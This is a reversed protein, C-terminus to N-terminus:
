NGSQGSTLHAQKLGGTRGTDELRLISVAHDLLELEQAPRHVPVRGDGLAGEEFQNVLHVFPLLLVVAPLPARHHM